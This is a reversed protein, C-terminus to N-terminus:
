RRWQPALTETTGRRLIKPERGYTVCFFVDGSQLYGQWGDETCLRDAVEIARENQTYIAMAIPPAVLLGFGILVLFIVMLREWKNM